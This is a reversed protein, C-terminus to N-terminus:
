RYDRALSWSFLLEGIENWDNRQDKTLQNIDQKMLDKRYNELVTSLINKGFGSILPPEGEVLTYYKKKTKKAKEKYLKRKRYDIGLSVLIPEWYLFEAESNLDSYNLGEKFDFFSTDCKKIFNQAEKFNKMKDNLLIKHPILNEAERSYRLTHHHLYDYPNKLLEDEIKKFTDGFLNSDKKPDPLPDKRYKRDSDTIVLCLHNRKKIENRVVFATTAGGGNRPLYKHIINPIKLYNCYAQLILGYFDCDYLNECILHTEEFIEFNHNHIPDFYLVKSEPQPPITKTVVMRWKISKKLVQIDSDDAQIFLGHIKPLVKRLTEKIGPNKRLAPIWIYHKRRMMCIGVEQLFWLVEDYDRHHPDQVISIIDDAIEIFMKRKGITRAIKTM